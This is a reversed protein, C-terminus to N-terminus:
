RGCEAFEMLIEGACFTFPIYVRVPLAVRWRKWVDDVDVSSLLEEPLGDWIWDKGEEKRREFDGLLQNDVDKMGYGDRHARREVSYYKRGSAM